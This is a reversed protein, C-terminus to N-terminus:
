RHPRQRTEIWAGRSPLSTYQIRVPTPERRLHTIAEAISDQLAAVDAPKVSPHLSVVYVWHQPALYSLGPTTIKAQLRRAQFIRNIAGIENTAISSSRPDIKM